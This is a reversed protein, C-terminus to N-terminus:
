PRARVVVVTSDDNTRHHDRHLVGAILSPHRNALGLYRELNWHSKLGDSQMVISAGPTWPYTFQQLRRCQAGITGNHSVLNTTKQEAVIAAAINGVGLYAVHEAERDIEAVAVAAGRSGRLAVHMAEFLETLSRGAGHFFIEVAKRSAAAALPGHGVGDAVIVRM